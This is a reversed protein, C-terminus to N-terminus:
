RILALRLRDNNAECTLLSSPGLVGPYWSSETPILSDSVRHRRHLLPSVILKSAQIRLNLVYQAIRHALRASKTLFGTGVWALAGLTCADVTRPTRQRRM